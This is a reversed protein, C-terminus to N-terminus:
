LRVALAKTDSHLKESNTSTNTNSAVTLPLTLNQPALVVHLLEVPATYSVQVDIEKTEYGAFSCTLTYHGEELHEILFHGSLNTTATIDYGQVSINAFALPANKSAKDLINGVILGTGQAFSISSFLIFFYFIYKLILM